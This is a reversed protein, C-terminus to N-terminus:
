GKGDDGDGRADLARAEIGVAKLFRAVAQESMRITRELEKIAKAVAEQDGEAWARAIEREGRLAARFTRVVDDGLKKSSRAV